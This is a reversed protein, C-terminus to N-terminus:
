PLDTLTGEARALAVRALQFAALADNLQTRAGTLALSATIVDANGAVGARFRERSQTLEQEALRLRERAAEVQERAAALDLVASRMEIAIQERLDRRRVDIEREVAHQEDIRAERRFGDFIPLSLQVGFTYTALMHDLSRGILGQDAVLGVAPLRELRIARVQQAAAEQQTELARLDARRTFARALAATEDVTVSADVRGLSDAITVPADLQIGLTRQLELRARDRENRAAILQARVVSRQSEARTVDLAIGVGAALVDRAIGLLEEALASDAARAALQADARLVRVYATAAANAAGVGAASAEAGAARAGAQAARWRGLVSADFVTQSVRGRVDYTHVGGIVQGDPDFVPPQGPPTPFDLGLTATNFSRQAGSAYASLNPLLDARRQQVRAEAQEVRLAAGQAVASRRAALRAADGLTLSQAQVQVQADTAFPSLALAVLSAGSMIRSARRAVINNM